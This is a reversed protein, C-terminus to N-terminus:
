PFHEFAFRQFYAHRSRISIRPRISIKFAIYSNPMKVCRGGGVFLGSSLRM